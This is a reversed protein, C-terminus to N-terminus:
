MPFLLHGSFWSFMVKNGDTGFVSSSHSNKVKVKEGAKVELTMTCSTQTLEAPGFDSNQDWCRTIPVDDITIWFRSNKDNSNKTVSFQYLGNSVATYAGNTVDYHDGSDYMVKNWQIVSNEAVSNQWGSFTVLFATKALGTYLDCM